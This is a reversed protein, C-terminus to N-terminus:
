GPLGNHPLDLLPASVAVVGQVRSCDGTAALSPTARVATGHAHLASPGNHPLAMVADPGADPTPRRASRGKGAGSPKQM